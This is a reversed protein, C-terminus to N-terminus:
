AWREANGYGDALVRHGHARRPAVRLGALVLGDRRRKREDDGGEGGDGVHAGRERRLELEVAALRLQHEDVEAGALAAEASRGQRLNVRLHAIRRGIQVLGPRELSEELRDLPQVGGPLQEGIVVARVSTEERYERFHGKRAARADADVEVREHEIRLPEVHVTM